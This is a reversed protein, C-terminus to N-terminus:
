RVPSIQIKSHRQCTSKLLICGQLNLGNDATLVHSHTTFLITVCKCYATKNLTSRYFAFPVEHVVTVEHAAITLDLLCLWNPEIVGITIYSTTSIRSRRSMGNIKFFLTYKLASIDMRILFRRFSPLQHCSVFFHFYSKNM